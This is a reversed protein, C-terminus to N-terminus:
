TELNWHWFEMPADCPKFGISQYLRQAGPNDTRVELTVRCCELLRAHEAAKLLLQRGIGQKRFDKKVILDHVNLLPKARFSSINVFAIIMGIFESKVAALLILCTPHDALLLIMRRAHEDSMPLLAGGMPDTRYDDILTRVARQHDTRKLSAKLIAPADTNINTGM